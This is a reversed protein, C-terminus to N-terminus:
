LKALYFEPALPLVPIQSVRIAHAATVLHGTPQPPGQQRDLGPRDRQLELGFHGLPAFVLDAKDALGVPRHIQLCDRAFQAAGASRHGFLSMPISQNTKAVLRALVCLAEVSQVRAAPSAFPNLLLSVIDTLAHEVRRLILGCMQCQVPLGRRCLRPLDKRRTTRLPIPKSWHYPTAHHSFGCDFLQILFEHVLFALIQRERKAGLLIAQLNEFDTLDDAIDIDGSHGLRRVVDFADDIQAALDDRDDVKAGLETHLGGFDGLLATNNDNFDDLFIARAAHPDNDIADLFDQVNGAVADLFRGSESRRDIRVEDETHALDAVRDLNQEIDVLHQGAVM